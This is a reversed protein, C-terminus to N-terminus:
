DEEENIRTDDLQAELSSVENELDIVRTELLKVEFELDANTSREEPLVRLAELLCHQVDPPLTGERRLQVEWTLLDTEDIDDPRRHVM